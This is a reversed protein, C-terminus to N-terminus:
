KRTSSCSVMCLWHRSVYVWASEGSLSVVVDWLQGVPYPRMRCDGIELLMGGMTFVNFDTILHVSLFEASLRCDMARHYCGYAKCRLLCGRFKTRIQAQYQRLCFPKVIHWWYALDVTSLRSLTHGGDIFRASTLGIYERANREWRGGFVGGVSDQHSM